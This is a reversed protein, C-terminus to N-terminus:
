NTVVRVLYVSLSLLGGSIKFCESLCCGNPILAVVGM